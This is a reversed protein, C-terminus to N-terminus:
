EYKSGKILNDIKLLYQLNTYHNLSYIDDISNATVLPKIHDIHLEDYETYMRGYTCMFTNNLYEHLYQIDCGLIDIISKNKKYNKSKLAMNLSNRLKLELRFLPNQTIRKKRSIYKLRNSRDRNNKTWEKTQDKIKDKNLEYYTKNYNKHYEVNEVRFEKRKLEISEKNNAYYNKFYDVMKNKNKIRYYKQQCKTSCFKKYTRNNSYFEMDCLVCNAM